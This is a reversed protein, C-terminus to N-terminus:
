IDKFNSRNFSVPSLIYGFLTKLNDLWVRENQEAFNKLANNM